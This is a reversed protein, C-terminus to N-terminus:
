PEQNEVVVGSGEAIFYRMNSEGHVPVNEGFINNSIIGSSRSEGVRIGTAYGVVDPSQAVNSVTNGLISVNDKRQRGDVGYTGTESEGDSVTVYSDLVVGSWQTDDVTNNEVIINNVPGGREAGV